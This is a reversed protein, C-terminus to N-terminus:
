PDNRKSLLYRAFDTLEKREQDTMESLPTGGIFALADFTIDHAPDDTNELLYDITVGFYNALRRIMDINPESAGTEYKSYTTRDIGMADAITQQSERRANRLQKLRM